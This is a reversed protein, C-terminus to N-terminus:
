SEKDPTRSDYGCKKCHDYEEYDQPNSYNDFQNQETFREGCKPCFFQKKIEARLFEQLEKSLSSLEITIDKQNNPIVTNERM